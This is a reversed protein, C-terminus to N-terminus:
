NNGFNEDGKLSIIYFKSFTKRHKQAKTQRNLEAIIIKREWAM